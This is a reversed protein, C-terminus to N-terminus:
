CILYSRVELESAEFDTVHHMQEKVKHYETLFIRLEKANHKPSPLNHFKQLLVQTQKVPDGYRLLLLSIALAYNANTNPLGKIMEKPEGKVSQFLYSLKVSDELIM